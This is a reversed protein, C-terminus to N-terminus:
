SSIEEEGGLPSDVGEANCSQMFRYLHNLVRDAQWPFGHARLNDEIELAVIVVNQVRPWPDGLIEHIFYRLLDNAWAKDYL